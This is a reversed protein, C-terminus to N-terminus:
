DRAAGLDIEYEIGLTLALVPLQFVPERNVRVERNGPYSRLGAGAVLRGRALTASFGGRLTLTGQYAFTSNPSLNRDPTLDLASLQAGFAAWVNRGFRAEGGAQWLHLAIDSPKGTTWETAGTAAVRLDPSLQLGISACPGLLGNVPKAWLESCVGGGVFGSFSTERRRSPEPLDGAVIASNSHAAPAPAVEVPTATAVPSSAAPVSLASEATPAIAAHILTLIEEVWQNTDQVLTASSTRVPVGSTAYAVVVLPPVCDIRIEGEALHNM